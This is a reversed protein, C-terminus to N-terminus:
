GHLLGQPTLVVREGPRFPLYGGYSFTQLIGDDFRVM